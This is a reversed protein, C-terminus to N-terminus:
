ILLGPLPSGILSMDYDGPWNYPTNILDTHGYGPQGDREYDEPALGMAQLMTVLLRNHPLGPILTGWGPIPNAYDGSWDIYDLFQGTRLAGGASGALVTPMDTNYHDFALESGWCVLSSDLFTKGEGEEAELRSVFAGFVDSAVWQAIGILNRRASPDSAADHAFQHWDGAVDGSNHFSSVWTGSGNTLAEAVQFTVIRTLDCRIAAVAIDILLSISERFDEISSVEEWPYGNEISRPRPPVSCAVTARAGLSREIDALFAMHRELLARDAVGIRGGDRVRAYDQHIANMLSRNPDEVPTESPAVFSGFVSDWADEPNMFHSAQEVEGGRMGYDTFSFSSPYGSGLHLTRVPPPAPYVRSSYAMVQDITPVQSLSGVETSAAGGAYNGWFAGANHGSAPLFDLGRVLNMKSLYPTLSAGLINSLAGTAGFDSLPAQSAGTSGSIPEHLYSTGDSKPSDGFLTDRRQYGAPTATPYWEKSMQGSQTQIAIFRRPASPLQAELARPALSALFPISLGAGAATYLFTRRGLSREREM